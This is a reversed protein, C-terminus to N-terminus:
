PATERSKGFRTYAAVHFEDEEVGGVHVAPEVLCPECSELLEPSDAVQVEVASVCDLAAVDAHGGPLIGDPLPEGAGPAIGARRAVALEM